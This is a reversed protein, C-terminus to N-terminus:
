DASASGLISEPAELEAQRVRLTDGIPPGKFRRRELGYWVAATIALFGLTIPLAKGNPPQVGIVFIMVVMVGVLAAVVCYLPGM